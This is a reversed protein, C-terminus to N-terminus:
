VWQARFAVATNPDRSPLDHVYCKECVLELLSMALGRLAYRFYQSEFVPCEVVDIRADKPGLRLVRVGGGDLGRLWFRQFHPLLTWPNVGVGRALGTATGLLLGKTREFTGRGLKAASEASVEMRDCAVYHAVAIDVPLWMGAVATQIADRVAPPSVADYAEILGAAKISALGGLMLTSRVHRVPPIPSPLALVVDDSL